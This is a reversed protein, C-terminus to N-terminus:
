RVRKRTHGIPEGDPRTISHDDIMKYLRTKGMGIAEATPKVKHDNKEFAYEVMLKQIKKISEDYQMENSYNLFEEQISDMIQREKTGPILRRMDTMSHKRESYIIVLLFFTSAIPLIAVANIQMDYNMLVLITLAGLVLPTYAILMRWCRAREHEYGAEVIGRILIYGSTVLATAAVIRFFAYYEGRIATMTVTFSQAGAVILNTTVVLIAGCIAGLWVVQVIVKITPDSKLSAVEMSWSCALAVLIFSVGYYARMVTQAYVGPEGQALFVGLECLNHFALGGIFIFLGKSRIGSTSAFIIAALKVFLAVLVPIVFFNM